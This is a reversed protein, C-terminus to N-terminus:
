SPLPARCDAHAREQDDNFSQNSSLDAVSTGTSDGVSLDNATAVHRAMGAGNSRYARGTVYCRDDGMVNWTCANRRGLHQSVSPSYKTRFQEPAPIKSEQAGM